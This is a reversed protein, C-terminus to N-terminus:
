NRPHYMFVFQVRYRMCYRTDCLFFAFLVNIFRLFMSVDLCVRSLLCAPDKRMYKAAKMQEMDFSNPLSWYFLYVTGDWKTKREMNQLGIPLIAHIGPLLDENEKDILCNYLADSISNFNKLMTLVEQRSGFLGISAINLAKLKEFYIDKCLKKSSGPKLFNIFRELNDPNLVTKNVLSSQQNEMLIQPLEFIIYQDDYIGTKHKIIKSTSPIDVKLDQYIDTTPNQLANVLHYFKSSVEKLREAKDERATYKIRVSNDDNNGNGKEDDDGGSDKRVSYGLIHM